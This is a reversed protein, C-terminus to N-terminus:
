RDLSKYRRLLENAAHEPSRFDAIRLIEEAKAWVPLEGCSPLCLLWINMSQRVKAEFMRCMEYDVWRSETSARSFLIVGVRSEGIATRISPGLPM